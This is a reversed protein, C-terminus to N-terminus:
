QTSKQHERICANLKAQLDCNAIIDVQEEKQGHQPTIHPQRIDLIAAKLKEFQSCAVAILTTVLSMYGCVVGVAILSALWQLYIFQLLM